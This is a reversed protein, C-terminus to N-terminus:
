PQDKEEPEKGSDEKNGEEQGQQYMAAGIKQIAQSLDETAKQIEETGEGDKVQRLADLKEEVGKRDEPSVKDGADKLAKQATYLLADAANRADVLERRKRDEEEHLEADKRMRESEEKSIGSSGEIRITQTKGSAKDKALVELIGNADIDFVVEVQPVGRPSPPIGDLIFRGLSKNDQAMKREGQVVHVEVSTQNDAATSFVQSKSTPITTNKEILVTAVAGLTEIGLSLPTVDLLLVDKVDGQLIGGQVAAGLAVVEDPNISRNPDKGFLKKVAEQILPMRTQGGVLVVEDIDKPAMKGERLTQEMLSVSRDVYEQVLSELQARTLKFYLHKPGEAGSTIFPLNVETEMSSSLEIKAKEAGEKLRQLALPDK